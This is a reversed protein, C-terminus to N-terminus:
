EARLSKVPNVLAARMSQYSITALAILLVLLGSWLFTTWDLSVHYAYGKLWEHLGWWALPTALLISVGVLSMFEKSLLRFISATGAGLVKRIGIEKLRQEATFIVLGLLGMCSIAIALGAFYRALEQVMSESKYLQQYAEETFTYTFPFAPNLESSLASLGAIAESTKGRETRILIKGGEEPRSYSVVLPYIKNQLSSLHFDKLVGLIKGKKGQFTLPKGIPNKYHMFQIATENVLYDTTDSAYGPSFDRGELLELGMTKVLNYGSSVWLFAIKDHPDKGDWDMENVWYDDFGVPSASTNTVQAIGPLQLARDKFLAYDRVLNGELPLYVLRDRDFGLHAHQMYELQRSVLVTATILLMSLTFQFVVLGKRFLQSGGGMMRAAKLIRVPDFSSLVLAPYIGSLVGTLLMIGMLQLWFVVSALPLNMDKRTITDFFPLTVKALVLAFFTAIFVLLVAEGIFQGILSSRLAGSVKRIGIEKARKVSRATTLNMFNICAILLIFLAVVRFLNVYEIRGGGIQKDVFDGHLYMQDFRQMELEVWYDASQKTNLNDMFHRIRNRFQDPNASPQLVITTYPAVNNWDLIGPYDRLLWYYNILYDFHWSSHASLDEFVASVMFEQRDNYRVTKGVAQEVSGFLNVAMKRSLAISVPTNLATAASGEVLPYSFVKFFDETAFDGQEKLVKDNVQFTGHDGWGSYTAAYQVEPLSKKMEQALLGPTSYGIGMHIGAHARQILNYRREPNAHFADMSQEDRVWLFILLSCALGLSLGMINIFSFTKNKWLNRWAVSWYNKLM